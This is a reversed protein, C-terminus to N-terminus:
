EYKCIGGFGRKNKGQSYQLWKKSSSNAANIMDFVYVDGLLTATYRHIVEDTLEITEHQNFILKVNYKNIYLYQNNEIVEFPVDPLLKIRRDNMIIFEDYCTIANSHIPLILVLFFFLFSKNFFEM